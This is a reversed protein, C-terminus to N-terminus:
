GASLLSELRYYYALTCYDVTKVGKGERRIKNSAARDLGTAQYRWGHSKERLGCLKYHPLGCLETWAEVSGCRWETMSSCVTHQVALSQYLTHAVSCPDVSATAQTAATHPLATHWVPCHTTCLLAITSTSTPWM